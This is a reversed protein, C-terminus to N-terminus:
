NNTAPYRLSSRTSEQLTVPEFGQPPQGVSARIPLVVYIGLGAPLLFYLIVIAALLLVGIGKLLSKPRFIMKKKMHFENRHIGSKWYNHGFSRVRALNAWGRIGKGKIEVHYLGPRRVFFGILSGTVVLSQGVQPVRTLSDAVRQRTQPASKPLPSFAALGACVKRPLRM